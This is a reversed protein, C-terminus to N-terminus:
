PESPPQFPRGRDAQKTSRKGKTLNLESFFRSPKKKGQRVETVPRNRICQRHIEARLPV